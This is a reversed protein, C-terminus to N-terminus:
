GAAVNAGEKATPAAPGGRKLPLDYFRWKREPIIGQPRVWLVTILLAGVIINRM